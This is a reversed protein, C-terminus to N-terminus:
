PLKKTYFTKKILKLFRKQSLVVVFSDGIQENEDALL